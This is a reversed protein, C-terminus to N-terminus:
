LGLVQIKAKIACILKETNRIDNKQRNVNQM